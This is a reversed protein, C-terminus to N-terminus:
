EPSEEMRFARSAVFYKQNIVQHDPLGDMSLGMGSLFDNDLGTDSEGKMRNKQDTLSNRGDRSSWFYYKEVRFRVM